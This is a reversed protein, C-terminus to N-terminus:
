ETGKRFRRRIALLWLAAFVTTLLSEVTGLAILWPYQSDFQATKSFIGLPNLLYQLSFGFWPWTNTAWMSAGSASSIANLYHDARWFWHCFFVWTGFFWFVPRTTSQGYESIWDYLKSIWASSDFYNQSLSANALSRQECAFFKGEDVPSKLSDHALHRLWRYSAYEREGDFAQFTTNQFSTDAFLKTGFFEPACKFTSYNFSTPGDFTLNQFNADVEIQCSILEARSRIKGHIAIGAKLETNNLFFNRLDVDPL